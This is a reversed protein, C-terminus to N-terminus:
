GEAVVIRVRALHALRAFRAAADGERQATVRATVFITGSDPAVVTRRLTVSPAPTVDEHVALAGSGDLDWDVGVIHGAGPPVEAELVLDVHAGPRVDARAGGDAALAVVPQIGGRDVASAPVVVQGDEIRYRTTPAPEVGDEVWAALARLAHHLAGLYSVTRTPHEQAESDGHLAQDVYWLRFRDAEADGLHEVVRRRYWDAQWPFAERDYLCSVLIMRGSFAGSPLGGVAGAAFVPGVLFPRQPHRPAGSAERYQDWVPYQDGDPVQHRMYTQTALVHSNDVVVRDGPAIRAFSDADNGADLMAVDGDVDALVFRAGAAAGSEVVLEALAVPAPLPVSLRLAVGRGGGTQKYSEDVGGEGATSRERGVQDATLTGVAACRHVVRAAHVSSGPDAGEYGPVTWFDTFYGPDVMMLPPFIVSFAHGGMTRHGFWSRPPFGLRTAERLAQAQEATLGAYPDGSGGPALADDIMDLSGALIRQAHLRVSFVNPVAMPSGPVYPVFGDWVGETNEAAGITRYAGGSGGYAYGRVTHEGHLGVLVQKAVTACAANARYAGLTPDGAEGAVFTTGGGNTELFAAGSEISFSIRDEEGTASQALHESQPVPTVHQFFRGEYADEPPVYLSFRTEGDRFGGHLYRHRVPADRWEDVDVYPTGFGALNPSPAPSLQM